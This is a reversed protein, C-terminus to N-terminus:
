LNAAALRQRLSQIEAVLDAIVEASSAQMGQYEPNGDKDVADKTGTVSSPYVEQFKHALFGRTNAGGAKWQYEIPELSDIRQGANSVAGIVNKLRYDSTTNYTVASTQAVRTISGTTVGSQNFRMYQTGSTNSTEDLYLGNNASTFSFLAKAANITATAGVLLNGSSDIRAVENGGIFFRHDAAYMSNTCYTATSRNYHLTQNVNSTVGPYFQFVEAGANSISLKASNSTTTGLLLNGSADLTMAATYSITNGATGSPANYFVHTGAGQVYATSFATALYKWNTGDNFGNNTLITDSGNSNSLTSRSGIQFGKWNTGWASPTVGLGLNGSPDIIAQETGNRQFVWKNSTGSDVVNLTGNNSLTTYYSSNFEVRLQPLTTSVIHLKSAPSATGIGVNQSADVTLATTNATQLQLIGSTDATSILGASTSANIISALEFEKL